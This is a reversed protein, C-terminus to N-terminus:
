RTPDYRGLLGAPRFLLVVLIVVFPVMLKYSGGVLNVSVEQAVGIVIGGLVAGPLSTLGGLIAAAFGALLITWGSEPQIVSKIGLLVGAMGAVFGAVVWQVILVRHTRVGSTRALDTNDAMARMQRGISTYRFLAFVALLTAACVGAVVLDTPQIMVGGLNFARSLQIPFVIPDHGLYFTLVNRSLLAVGISALLPAVFGRGELPRFVAGYVVLSLIAVSVGGVLGAAVVGMATKTFAFYAAYAGITAFDGVAANPFRAISYTCVVSLAIMAVVLGEVLGNIALNAYIQGM